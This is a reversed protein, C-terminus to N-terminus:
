KKCGQATDQREVQGLVHTWTDCIQLLVNVTLALFLLQLADKSCMYTCPFSCCYMYLVCWSRSRRLRGCAQEIAVWCKSKWETEFSKPSHWFKPYARFVLKKLTYMEARPLAPLDKTGAPTCRRMIDIGFIASKALTQALTSPKTESTKKALVTEVSALKDSDIEASPLPNNSYTHCLPLPDPPTTVESPLPSNIQEALPIQMSHTSPLAFPLYAPTFQNAPPSTAVPVPFPHHNPVPTTFSHYNTAIPTAAPSGFGGYQHPIVLTELRQLAELVRSQTNKIRNM